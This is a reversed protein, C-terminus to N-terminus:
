PKELPARPEAPGGLNESAATVSSGSPVVVITSFHAFVSIFPVSWGLSESPSVGLSGTHRRANGIPPVLAAAAPMAPRAEPIPTPARSTGGAGRLTAARCRKRFLTTIIM